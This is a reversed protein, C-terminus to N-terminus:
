LAANGPCLVQSVAGWGGGKDLEWGGVDWRRDDSSWYVFVAFVEGNKNKGEVFFINTYGNSLLFGEKGEPQAEIFGAIDELMSLHSAPLEQRIHKDFANAKLLSAVYPRGSPAQVPQDVDFRNRFSDYVYLGKRTQFFEKVFPTDNAATATKVPKLLRTEVLVPYRGILRNILPRLATQVVAKVADGSGLLSQAEERNLNFGALVEGAATGAAAEVVSIIQRNQGQTISRTTMAIRRNDM